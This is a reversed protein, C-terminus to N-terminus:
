HRRYRVPWSPTDILNITLDGHTFSYTRPKQTVSHGATHDGHHVRKDTTIVRQDYTEHSMHLFTASIPFFGGAEESADLTEYSVYNAFGNIWTSKGTGTEGLLLLNVTTRAGVIFM